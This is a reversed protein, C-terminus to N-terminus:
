ELSQSIDSGVHVASQAQRQSAREKEPAKATGQGLFMEAVSSSLMEAPSASMHVGGSVLLYGWSSTELAAMVKQEVLLVAAGSDAIRTVHEELLQKALQESLGATPEDLVYLSPRMMMVRGVAVLKQEGGSLKHVSRRMLPSLIPFTAVVEEIREPVDKKKLLYGGMKLNEEVNLTGFVNRVQPVYAIGRRALEDTRLNTVDEGEHRVVGELAPIVGILAKILTSKGAGNPGVVAAIEGRGVGLSVGSIIRVGGYGAALNSVELHHQPRTTEASSIPM